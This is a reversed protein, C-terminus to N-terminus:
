LRLLREANGHAIREKDATGVPLQDLFSRAQAMSGYPYDASFMIQDVGVELLLDLFTATYNFGSFTYHINERLYTGVPRALKTVEAPLSRDLRRLM